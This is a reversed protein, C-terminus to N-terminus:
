EGSAFLRIQVGDAGSSDPEALSELNAVTKESQESSENNLSKQFDRYAQAQEKLGNRVLTGMDEVAAASVQSILLGGIILSLKM